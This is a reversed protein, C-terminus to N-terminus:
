EGYGNIKDLDIKDMASKEAKIKEIEQSPNEVWPLQSLATSLSIKDGLQSIAQVITIIDVPINPTYNIRIDQVNFTINKLALYEFLRELRDYITDSIIDFM